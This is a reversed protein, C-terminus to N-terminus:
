SIRREVCRSPIIALCLQYEPPGAPPTWPRAPTPAGPDKLCNQCYNTQPNGRPEGGQGGILPFPPNPFNPNNPNNPNNPDHPKFGFPDGFSIPNNGAYAYLNTGSGTFGMPDESLFRGTTPNYYRARYYSQIRSMEGISSTASVTMVTSRSDYIFGLSLHLGPAGAEAIQYGRGNSEASVM